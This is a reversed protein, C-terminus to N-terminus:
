DAGRAGRDAGTLIGLLWRYLAPNGAVLSGEHLIDDGGDLTTAVGGAERVLVVGAAVDWPSLSLEWFAEFRGAAVDVLDMAASGVRRVGSSARIVAAFQRQYRDLLELHKFPFGTGVLARRHDTVPSVRLRQEGQWAGHGTAGHYVLDRPVDHVVGVSLAGRVVCGISVAYQPYRHLFNTTGDLPDVIWTIEADHPAGPSLEEGQIRSGPVREHLAAAILAEATRDVESVFDHQAKEVWSTPAPPVVGRLYAAAHGAAWRAADVLDM